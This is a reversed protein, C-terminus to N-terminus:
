RGRARRGSRWRAAAEPAEEVLLERRQRVDVEVERAVHALHQDRAHVLAVPALARREDGGERGVARAARDALEALREPQRRPLDLADRAARLAPRRLSTSRSMAVASPASRAVAPPGSAGPQRASASSAWPRGRWREWCEPPIITAVRGSISQQGTTGAAISPRWIALPVLVGAGVRAEQLDVQEPQPHERRDLAAHLLDRARAALPDVERPDGVVVRRGVLRDLLGVRDADELDLAARLHRESRRVRGSFRSSRVIWTAITRGPGIWPPATLGYM